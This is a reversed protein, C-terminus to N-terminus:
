TGSFFDYSQKILSCLIERNREFDEKILRIRYTGQSSRYDILDIGSNELLAELEDSQKMRFEVKLANKQPRLFGFNHLRGYRTFGIYFKNYKLELLPDIDKAINLIDNAMNVTTQTGRQEWYSRDTIEQFEEDDDVLGLPMVDVVTTFTLTVRDEIRFANMLSMYWSEAILLNIKTKEVDKKRIGKIGRMTFRGINTLMDKTDFYRANSLGYVEQVFDQYERITTTSKVSPM